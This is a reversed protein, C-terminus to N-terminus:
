AVTVTGTELQVQKASEPNRNLNKLRADGEPIFAYKLSEQLQPNANIRNEIGSSLQTKLMTNKEHLANLAEQQQRDVGNNMQLGQELAQIKQDLGQLYNSISQGEKLTQSDVLTNRPELTNYQEKLGETKYDYNEVNMTM